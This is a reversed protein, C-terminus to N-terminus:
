GLSFHAIFVIAMATVLDNNPVIDNVYKAAVVVLLNLCFLEIMELPLCWYYDYM